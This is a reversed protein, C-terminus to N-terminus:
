KVDGIGAIVADLDKRALAFPQSSIAVRAGPRAFEAVGVVHAHVCSSVLKNALEAVAADLNEVSPPLRQFDEAARAARRATEAVGPADGEIRVAIQIHGVGAVM